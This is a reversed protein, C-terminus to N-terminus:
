EIIKYGIFGCRASNLTRDSGRNHNIYVQFYDGASAEVLGCINFTVTTNDKAVIHRTRVSENESGIDSNGNKYLAGVIIDQDYVSDISLNAKFFYKGGEGTPVTFKNTGDYASATDYIETQFSVATWVGSTITQSSSPVASFNPTNAGGVGTTKVSTVAGDSIDATAITGDVIKASTIISDELDASTLPVNTPKAGIFAM